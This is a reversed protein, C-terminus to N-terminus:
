AREGAQAFTSLDTKRMSQLEFVYGDSVGVKRRATPAGFLDTLDVGGRLAEAVGGPSFTPAVAGLASNGVKSTIKIIEERFDQEVIINKNIKKREKDSLGKMESLRTLEAILRDTMERVRAIDPTAAQSERYRESTLARISENMEALAYADFGAVSINRMGVLSKIFAARRKLGDAIPVGRALSQAAANNIPVMVAEFWLAVHASLLADEGTSALLSSILRQADGGYIGDFDSLMIMGSAWLLNYRIGADFNSPTPEDFFTSLMAQRYEDSGNEIPGFLEKQSFPRGARTLAFFKERTKEAKRPNDTRVTFGAGKREYDRSLSVTDFFATSPDIILSRDEDIRYWLSMHGRTLMGSMRGMAEPSFDHRRMLYTLAAVNATCFSLVKDWMLLEAKMYRRDLGTTTDIDPQGMVSALGAYVSDQAVNQVLLRKMDDFRPYVYFWQAIETGVAKVETLDPEKQLLATQLRQMLTDMSRMAYRKANRKMYDDFDDFYLSLREANKAVPFREESRSKSSESVQAGATVSALSLSAVLVATRMRSLASSSLTARMLVLAGNTVNDWFREHARMADIQRIVAAKDGGRLAADYSTKIRDLWQAGFTSVEFSAEPGINDPLWSMLRSIVDIKADISEFFTLRASHVVTAIEKDIVTPILSRVPEVSLRARLIKEATKGLESDPDGLYAVLLNAVDNLMIGAYPNTVPYAWAYSTADMNEGRWPSNVLRLTGDAAEAFAFSHYVLTNQAFSPDLMAYQWGDADLRYRVFAHAPGLVVSLADMMQPTFGFRAFLFYELAALASCKSLADKDSAIEEAYVSPLIFRPTTVQDMLRYRRDLSDGRVTQVMTSVLQDFRPYFEIAGSLTMMADWLVGSRVSDTRQVERAIDEVADARRWVSDRMDFYSFFLDLEKEFAAQNGRADFLSDGLASEPM